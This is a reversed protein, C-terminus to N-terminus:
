ELRRVVVTLAAGTRDVRRLEMPRGELRLLSTAKVQSGDRFWAARDHPVTLELVHGPYIRYALCVDAMCLEGTGQALRVQQPAAATGDVTIPGAPTLTLQLLMPRTGATLPAGGSPQRPAPPPMRPGGQGRPPPVGAARQVVPDGMGAGGQSTATAATHAGRPRLAVPVTLQQGPALELPLTVDHYGMARVWLVHAGPALETIIYPSTDAMKHGDLLLTIGSAPVVTVELSAAPSPASPAAPATPKSQVSSSAQKYAHVREKLKSQGECAGVMGMACLASVLAWSRSAMHMNKAATLRNLM